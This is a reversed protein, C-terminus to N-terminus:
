KTSKNTSEVSLDVDVHEIDGESIEANTDEIRYEKFIADLSAKKTKVFDPMSRTSIRSPAVGMKKMCDKWWYGHGRDKYVRYAIFHCVEHPVTEQLFHSLIEPDVSSLFVPNYKILGRGLFAMGLTNKSTLEFNVSPCAGINNSKWIILAQKWCSETREILCKKTDESILDSLRVMKPKSLFNNDEKKKDKATAMEEAVLAEAQKARFVEMKEALTNGPIRQSQVGKELTNAECLMYLFSRARTVATYLLERQNMTAHSQHMIFFVREWESGQSKHVTIAYGGLLNNIEAASELEVEEDGYAFKITIIHSAQNVRDENGSAAHAMLAEVAELGFEKETEEVKIARTDEDNSRVYGWRDLKNSAPQFRAGLYQMNVSISTIFADEKDFLVRDGVALYHKNYGAIIEHVIADRKVGLHQSIGKNLEITGLSKNFPCLIMDEAPNYFGAEEWVNFQKTLTALAIDASIQNQFYHIRLKDTENWKDLAGISKRVLKKKVIDNYVEESATVRSSFDAPNGGLIGWALRIIPSDLAQRYVETLEVIPCELMKFGLIASGFIPPLQQIDGIYAEQYEHPMAEVLFNNLERAEMSSEEHVVFKVGSPLPNLRNRTPEFRMTKKYEGAKEPDEIEYFIPAFELLKHITLTHAKLIEPMAHRINNVAKRTYSVIVIGPLHSQLWKTSKGVAHIKGTELLAMMTKKQATTKGTGAAGILVVVPEGAVIMDCYRQQKDNLIIDRAVGIEKIVEEANEAYESADNPDLIDAIIEGAEETDANEDTIGLKSTDVEVDNAAVSAEFAALADPVNPMLAASTRARALLAALSEKTLAM